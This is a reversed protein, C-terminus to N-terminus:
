GSELAVKYRLARLPCGGGIRSASRALAFGTGVIRRGGEVGKGYFVRGVSQEHMEVEGGCVERRWAESSAKSESACAFM